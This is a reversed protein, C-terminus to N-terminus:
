FMPSMGFEFVPVWSPPRDDPWAMSLRVYMGAIHASLEVGVSSVAHPETLATGVDWFGAVAFGPALEFRLETNALALGDVTVATVGRVTDVGGLAFKYRSPLDWGTRVLLRQALAARGEWLPTDVDLPWYRSISALGSLYEAGPAFTGAKELWLSLQSGRRPFIPSDRDSFTVGVRVATRPDLQQGEETEWARESLFTTRLSWYPALPYSLMFEGGLTLTGEEERRYLDTEVLNYVPFAHGRYGLSWTTSGTETLGRALSVSVDQATGMLNKQAYELNGVIGKEQPSYTMAGRIHGLREIEEVEVLLSVADGVWEPQLVVDAFYGLAMLSQEARSLRAETLVEGERLELVRRIVRESTRTNGTATIEGLVGEKLRVHLVDGELNSDMALMFFGERLLYDHVPALAQLAQYNSVEGSPLELLRGAVREQSLTQLGTLEIKSVRAPSPLVTREELKWHLWVGGQGPEGEVDVRSFYVSGMLARYSGQIQSMRGVKGEPVDILRLAEEEPVTDLGSVRNGLVPLERIEIVLEAGLTPEGIDVTAVDRERYTEVVKELAKSLKAVNLVEGRDIDYDRLISRIKSESVQPADILWSRLVAWLTGTEVEPVGVLVVREIVPFERVTFQAIIQDDKIDMSPVVQAFYGLQQIKEAASRIRSADTPEGVKLGSAAVIEERSVHENGAVEVRLLPLAEQAWILSTWSLVLVIIGLFRRVVDGGWSANREWSRRRLDVFLIIISPGCHVLEACGLQSGGVGVSSTGPASVTSIAHLRRPPLVTGGM